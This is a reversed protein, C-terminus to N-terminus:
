IAVETKSIAQVEFKKCAGEIAGMNCALSFTGSPSMEFKGVGYEVVEGDVVVRSLQDFILTAETDTTRWWDTKPDITCLDGLVITLTSGDHSLDVSLVEADHFSTYHTLLKEIEDSTRYLTMVSMPVGSETAKKYDTNKLLITKKYHQCLLLKTRMAMMLM